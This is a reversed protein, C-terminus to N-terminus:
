GGVFAMKRLSVSPAAFRVKSRTKFRILFRGSTFAGIGLRFQPSCRLSREFAHCNRPSIRRPPPGSTIASKCQHGVLHADNMRVSGCRCLIAASSTGPRSTTVNVKNSLERSSRYVSLVNRDRGRAFPTADEGVM